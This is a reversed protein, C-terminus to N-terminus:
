QRAARRDALQAHRDVGPALVVGRAIPDILGVVEVDGHPTRLALVAGAVERLATRDRDVAAELPALPLVLLALLALRDVDDGVRHLEEGARAVVAAAVAAAERGAGMDGDVGLVERGGRGAARARRRRGVVVDRELRGDYSPQAACREPESRPRTHPRSRGDAAAAIIGSLTSVARSSPDAGEEASRFKKRARKASGRTAAVTKPVGRVGSCLSSSRALSM